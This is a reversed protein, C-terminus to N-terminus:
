CTYGKRLIRQPSSTVINVGTVSETMEAEKSSVKASLGFNNIKIIFQEKSLDAEKLWM